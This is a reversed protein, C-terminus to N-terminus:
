FFLSVDAVGNEKLDKLVKNGVEVNCDFSVTKGEAWKFCRLKRLHRLSIHFVFSHAMGVTSFFHEIKYARFTLKPTAKVYFASLGYQRPLITKFM